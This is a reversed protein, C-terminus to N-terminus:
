FAAPGTSQTLILDDPSPRMMESIHRSEDTERGARLEADIAKFNHMYERMAKNQEPTYGHFRQSLYTNGEQPSSFQRANFRDLISDLLEKGAGAIGWKSRFRGLRDRPHDAERWLSIDVAM